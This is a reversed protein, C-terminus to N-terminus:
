LPFIIVPIPVHEPLVNKISRGFLEEFHFRHNVLALLDAHLDNVMVDVAIELNREKINNFYLKDYKIRNSIECAFLDAAYGDSLHPLGKASFHEVVLNADYDRALEALFRLVATRCYRMDLAYTINEFIGKVYNDPVLLLPCAVRNIVGQVNVDSLVEHTIHTEVGKVMMWINKRIALEAIEKETYYCADIDNIVPRFDNSAIIDILFSVMNFSEVHEGDFEGPTVLEELLPIVKIAKGLNLVLLDAKVKQAIALALRGANRAETSNDNFLLITGM